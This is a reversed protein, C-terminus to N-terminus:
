FGRDNQASYSYRTLIDRETKFIDEIDPNKIFKVSEVIQKIKNFIHSFKLKREFFLKVAIEDAVTLAAPLNGGKKGIAYAYSLLPFKKVDPKQFSLRHIKEVGLPKLPNKIMEPFSLASLIPFRMDPPSLQAYIEGDITQIMSHIISQPHIIVEIKNFDIDFLHHAEIIEFGKNLMTASDVTIKSGMRWVPHRLADWPTVNVLDIKRWTLFPGGSATLIIKEIEDPRTRKLLHFLASHESDIPIIPVKNKRALKMIIKGAMVLSEKNALAVPLQERIAKHTYQLGASGIISNVVLDAKKLELLSRIGEEGELVTVGRVKKRLRAASEIDLVAAYKPHFQHIQRELIRINNKVALALVQFHKNMRRIINLTNKGISGTSGLIIIRKM